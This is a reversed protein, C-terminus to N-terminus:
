DRARTLDSQRGSAHSSNQTAAMLEPCSVPAVKDRRGNGGARSSYCPRPALHVEANIAALM